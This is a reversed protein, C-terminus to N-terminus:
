LNADQWRRLFDGFDPYRETATSVIAFGVPPCNLNLRETLWNRLPQTADRTPSPKTLDDWELEDYGCGLLRCFELSNTALVRLEGESGLVIVPATDADNGDRLWLAYVSGTSGRGFVAFRHQMETDNPFWAAMDDDGIKSIEFCGSIPYGNQDLFDCLTRVGLPLSVNPPFKSEVDNALMITNQRRVDLTVPRRREANIRSCVLIRRELERLQESRDDWRSLFVVFSVFLM